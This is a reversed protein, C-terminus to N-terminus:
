SYKQEEDTNNLASLPALPCQMLYESLCTNCDILGVFEVPM